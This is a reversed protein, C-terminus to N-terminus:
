VEPMSSPREGNFANELYRQFCQLKSLYLGLVAAQCDESKPDDLVAPLSGIGDVNVVGVVMKRSDSKIPFSLVWTLEPHVKNLEDVPLYNGSWQGSRKVVICPNGSSFAAGTGGHGPEIQLDFEPAYLMNDTAGPVIRLAGDIPAFLNVRIRDPSEKFIAAATSRLQQMEIRIKASLDNPLFPYAIFRAWQEYKSPNHVESHDGAIIHDLLFPSKQFFERRGSAGAKLRSVWRLQHSAFAALSVVWDLTARNNYVALVWKKNDPLLDTWNFKRPLISGTLVVRDYKLGGNERLLAELAIFTGFSHTIVSIRNVGVKDVLERLERRVSQVQKERWWPFFFKIAKFWGYDIHYPILNHQALYPTIEKQWVGRTRIGHITVVVKSKITM